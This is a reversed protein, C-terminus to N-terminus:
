YACRRIPVIALAAACEGDSLLSLIFRWASSAVKKLFSDLPDDQLVTFRVVSHLISREASADANVTRESLSSLSLRDLTLPEQPGGQSVFLVACVVFMASASIIAAWRLLSSSQRCPALSAQAAVLSDSSCTMTSIPSQRWAWFFSPNFAKIHQRHKSVQGGTVPKVVDGASGCPSSGGTYSVQCYLRFGAQFRGLTM